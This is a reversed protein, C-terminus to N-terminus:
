SGTTNKRKRIIREWPLQVVIVAAFVIACGAIQRPTLTQDTALLGTAGAIYGSVAAVVSEMSLILAATTPDVGKQGVIQLTYGVGCSLVGAYLVPIIGDALQGWSPEEFVFAAITSIVGCVFFQICSLVVGDTLPSFRDIVLIHVSFVLASGLVLLDGTSITFSDGTFCLLYMGVVALAVAAWVAGPVKRHLFLGLIPTLIIYLTTIFGGKGVTTMTMGFQQLTSAVTLALGCAIGGVITTRVPLPKREAKHVRGRLILIVPILVAAGILNRSGNFTLPGMSDMGAKQSVFAMGWVLAAMFLLFCNRIKHSGAM